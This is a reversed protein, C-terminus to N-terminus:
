FTLLVLVASYAGAGGKQPTGIRALRHPVKSAQKEMTQSMGVIAAEHINVLASLSEPAPFLYLFSLQPPPSAGVFSAGIQM